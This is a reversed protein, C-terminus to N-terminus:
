LPRKKIQHYPRPYPKPTENNKRIVLLKRQLGMVEYELVNEVHGGLVEIANQSQELEKDADKGKMAIFLGGRKVHPLCLETLINLPAVARATVVDYGSVIPMTEAREHMISVDINLEKALHELFALRKKQADVITLHLSPFVLKLPVGPFGAGSGVDLLTQNNFSVVKALSLSDFFHKMFVDDKNTIATLNMTENWAILAEYYTEFLGYTHDDLCVDVSALKTLFDSKM